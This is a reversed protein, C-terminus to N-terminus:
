KLLRVEYINAIASGQDAVFKVELDAKLLTKPIQYEQTYFVDGKSGDLKVNEVAVGNILISFNKNKEKGFYTLSLKTGLLDKNKLVYSFWAKGNRFHRELYTGNDTQEGKFNHDSEPQQEGTNILDITKQEMKMKEEEALKIAMARKSLAEPSSYPFYVVYRKEALSYFPVLKLSQYKPQYIANRANFTFSNKDILTIEDALANKAGTVLPADSIPFLAGSAIHGMRSGDATLNPQSLTDMAAALVIPGHLFAVWDSGDPMFETTTHMPLSINLVDGAAWVRDISAYGNEDSKVMVKKGNVLVTMKGKEIWAPQRFHLAFRQKNKLQLKLTTNEADPFLTQQTLQIGKEKWNLTSPIFLNVYLDNGSHAYILEGYKGHNELGSGVCCWFSEQPSSYTRYHGPRMPTFYVFGGEPRQSSLIHNYLTREYYDLYTNSPAALFLQKTLKLMNYSNCTEPGERSETMSSFDNAPHFHERVSNGGIAVTRHEVVTKWFFAAANAWSPDKDLLAIQEFGIVKPIQTNAHLGNLADTNKLLPKLISQDSFRKALQLYKQNGTIAYVHAFTENLGGHESKLLEQIQQDSLNSVLDVCWDTLKILMQKAKANGAVAYADYLGAYIKHINYLPVWKGNLSFSSSKINGAKIEKWIDKGGPIGALYGDGNKLQCKGLEAIMYELREKVKIDGTSAYMLALASLYHGGIHGDLGTNEWNGYSAAKPKLGAERLYPALLRDADLSLMYKKDTEQAQKFPGELLRVETLNFPQLSTQGFAAACVTAFLVAIVIKKM